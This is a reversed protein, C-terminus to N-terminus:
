RRHPKLTLWDPWYGLREIGVILLCAAIVAVFLIVRGLSPPRRALQAMRLFLRLTM